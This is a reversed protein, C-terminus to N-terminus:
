QLFQSKAYEFIQRRWEPQPLRRLQDFAAAPDAEVLGTLRRLTQWYTEDGKFREYEPTAEKPDLLPVGCWERLLNEHVVFAQIRFARYKPNSFLAFLEEATRPKTHPILVGHAHPRSNDAVLKDCIAEDKPFDHPAIVKALELLLDPKADHEPFREALALAAPWDAAALRQLCAAAFYPSDALEQYLALARTPDTPHILAAAVAKVPDQYRPALPRVLALAAEPDASRLLREAEAQVKLYCRHGTKAAMDPQRILALAAESVARDTLAFARAVAAMASQLKWDDADPALAKWAAETEPWAEPRPVEELAQLRALLDDRGPQEPTENM